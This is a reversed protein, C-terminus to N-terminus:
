WTVEEPEDPVEKRVRFVQVVELTVMNFKGYIPVPEKTASDRPRKCCKPCSVGFGNPYINFITEGCTNCGKIEWAELTPRHVFSGSPLPIHESDEVAKRGAV